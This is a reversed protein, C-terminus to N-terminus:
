TGRLPSTLAQSLAANTLATRLVPLFVNIMAPTHVLTQTMNRNQEAAIGQPDSVAATVADLATLGTSSEALVVLHIQHVVM